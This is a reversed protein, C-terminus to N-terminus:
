EDEVALAATYLQGALQDLTNYWVKDHGHGPTKAHAIEHMVVGVRYPTVGDWDDILVNLYITEEAGRYLAETTDTGTIEALRVEELAPAEIEPLMEDEIHALFEAQDPDPEVPVLERDDLYQQSWEAATPVTAELVAGVSSAYADPDLVTMGHNQARDIAHGPSDTELVLGEPDGFRAEVYAQQAAPDLWDENATLADTIWADKLEADTLVGPYRELVRRALATHYTSPLENRREAIPTKQQVDLVLDPGIDTVPIGLEYIGSDDADRRVHVDTRRYEESRVGDEAMVTKLMTDAITADPQQHTFTEAYVADEERVELYLEQEPPVQIAEIFSGVRDLDTETWDARHGEVRTGVARDTEYEERSWRIDEPDYEINVALGGGTTEVAVRDCAAIYEKIGRGFRGRREPDGGKDGEYVSIVQELDDIGSPYTDEVAIVNDTHDLTVHIDSGTDLANQVPERAVEYLDRSRHQEIWGADNFAFLGDGM